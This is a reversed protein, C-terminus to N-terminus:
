GSSIDIVEFPIDMLEKTIADLNESVTSKKTYIIIYEGIYKKIYSKLNNNFMKGSINNMPSDSLRHIIMMQLELPLNKLIKMFRIVLKIKSYKEEVYKLIMVNGYKKAINNEECIELYKEHISLAPYLGVLNIENIKDNLSYYGDCM